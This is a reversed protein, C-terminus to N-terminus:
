SCYYEMDEDTHYWDHATTSWTWCDDLSQRPVEKVQGKRRDGRTRSESAPGNARRAAEPPSQPSTRKSRVAPETTSALSTTSSAEAEAAAYSRRPPLPLPHDLRCLCLTTSAASASSRRPLAKMNRTTGRPLVHLPRIIPATLLRQPPIRPTTGASKATYVAWSYLGPVPKHSQRIGNDSRRTGRPEQPLRVRVTQM